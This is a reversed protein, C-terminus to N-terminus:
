TTATWSSATTLTSRKHSHGFRITETPASSPNILLTYSRVATSALQRIRSCLLIVNHSSKSSFPGIVHICVCVITQVDTGSQVTVFTISNDRHQSTTSYIASRVRAAKWM